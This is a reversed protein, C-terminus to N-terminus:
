PRPCLLICFYVNKLRTKTPYMACYDTRLLLHYHLRCCICELSVQSLVPTPCVSIWMGRVQKGGLLDGSLTVKYLMWRESAPNSPVKIADELNIAYCNKKRVRHLRRYIHWGLEYDDNSRCWAGLGIVAKVQSTRRRLFSWLAVRSHSLGMLWFWRRYVTLFTCAPTRWSAGAWAQLHHCSTRM